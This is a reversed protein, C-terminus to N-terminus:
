FVRAGVMQRRHRAKLTSSIYQRVPPSNHTSLESWIRQSQEHSGRLPLARKTLERSSQEHIGQKKSSWQMLDCPRFWNTTCRRSVMDRLAVRVLVRKRRVLFAYFCWLGMGFVFLILLIYAVKGLLSVLDILSACGSSNWDCPACPPPLPIATEPKEGTPESESLLPADMPGHESLVSDLPASELQPEMMAPAAGTQAHQRKRAALLQQRRETIKFFTIANVILGALNVTGQLGMVIALSMPFEKGQSWNDNLKNALSAIFAIGFVGTDVTQLGGFGVLCIWAFSANHSLVEDHNCMYQMRVFTNVFSGRWFLESYKALAGTKKHIRRKEPPTSCVWPSYIIMPARFIVLHLLFLRGVIPQGTHFAVAVTLIDLVLGLLRSTWFIVPLTIGCPALTKDVATIATKAFATADVLVSLSM